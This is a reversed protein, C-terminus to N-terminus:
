RAGAPTAFRNFLNTFTQVLRDKTFPKVIFDAAGMKLADRVVDAQDVASIMIVYASPNLRRIGELGHLGGFDPMVLDLTVVDPRLRKYLDIAEQGNGAEGAIDWGAKRAADKIMERIIMSDDTILLRPIM